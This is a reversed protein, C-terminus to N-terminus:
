CWASLLHHKLTRAHELSEQGLKFAESIGGQLHLALCCHQSITAPLNIPFAGQPAGEFRERWEHSLRRAENLDGNFLTTLEIIWHAPALIELVGSQEALELHRSCIERSRVPEGRAIYLFSLFISGRLLSTTDGLRESIECVREFAREREQSGIGHLM